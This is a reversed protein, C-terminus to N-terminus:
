LTLDFFLLIIRSFNTHFYSQGLAKSVRICIEKAGLDWSIHSNLLKTPLGLSKYSKPIYNSAHDCLFIIHRKSCKKDFENASFVKKM